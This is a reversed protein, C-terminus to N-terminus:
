KAENIIAKEFQKNTMKQFGKPYTGKYWTLQPKKNSYGYMEVQYIHEIDTSDETFADRDTLYAGSYGSVFLYGIVFAGFKDPTCACNAVSYKIWDPAKPNRKHWDGDLYVYDMGHKEGEVHINTDVKYALEIAEKVLLGLCDPYGDGHCYIRWTEGDASFGHYKAKPNNKVEIIARTSM